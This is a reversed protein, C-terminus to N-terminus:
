KTIPWKLMYLHENANIARADMSRLRPRLGSGGTGVARTVLLSVFGTVRLM